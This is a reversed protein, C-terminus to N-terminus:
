HCTRCDGAFLLPRSMLRRTKRLRPKRRVFAPVCVGIAQKSVDMLWIQLTRRPREVHRKYWLTGFAIGALLIQIAYSEAGSLLKCKKEVDAM